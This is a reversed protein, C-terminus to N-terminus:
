KARRPRATSKVPTRRPPKPSIELDIPRDLGTARLETADLDITLPPKAFFENWGGHRQKIFLGGPRQEIVAEGELIEFAKPIRVAQSNGARFVRTSLRKLNANM